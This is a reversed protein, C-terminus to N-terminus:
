RLQHTRFLEIMANSREDLEEWLANMTSSDNRLRELETQHEQITQELSTIRQTKQKADFHRLHAQRTRIVMRILKAFDRDSMSLIEIPVILKRAKTSTSFSASTFSFGKDDFNFNQADRFHIFWELNMSWQFYDRYNEVTYPNRGFVKTAVSVGVEHLYQVRKFYEDLTFNLESNRQVLEQHKLKTMNM